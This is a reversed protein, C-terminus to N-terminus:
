KKQEDHTWSKPAPEFEWDGGVLQALETAHAGGGEAFGEGREGLLPEDKMAGAAVTEGEGFVVFGNGKGRGRYAM